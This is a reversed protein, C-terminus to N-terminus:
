EESSLILPPLVGLALFCYPVLTKTKSHKHVMVENNQHSWVGRKKNKLSRIKLRGWDIGKSHLRTFHRSEQCSTLSGSSKQNEESRLFRVGGQAVWTRCLMWFSLVSFLTRLDSPGRLKMDKRWDLLSSISQPQPLNTTSSLFSSLTRTIHHPTYPVFYPHCASSSKHM